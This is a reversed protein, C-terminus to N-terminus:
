LLAEHWHPNTEVTLDLFIKQNTATQLEKRAAMGIERIMWGKDGIIMKKYRDSNTIIRARIYMVRNARDAIEDVVATLSYPIEKRLFLFAKERIIEAIFTKSNLNLAPTPRPKSTDIIKDNEPLREFISQILLNLNHKHLASVKLTENFEDELFTYHPYFSPARIDSKNFVLLKPKDIKRLLGIIKNEELERDRTHDVLYIVLDVNEKLVQGARPNIKKSVPDSVKGFIGPTDIFIIQGREDEYVAYIPLRTTQPKPSTISVKQGLINNLLTSKGSNPRGIIAVYGAKEKYDAEQKKM